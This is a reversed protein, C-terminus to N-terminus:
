PTGTHDEPEPEPQCAFVDFYVGEQVRAYRVAFERRLTDSFLPRPRYNSKLTFPPGPRPVYVFPIACRSFASRLPEDTVGSLELDMFAGYDTQSVGRATLWPRLNALPYSTDDGVGLMGRPFRLAFELLEDRERVQETRRLDFAILSGFTQFTPTIMGLVAATLALAARGRVAPTFGGAAPTFGYLEQFLLVHPALFPIFHHIGAGPKSAAVLVICESGLLTLAFGLWTRRAQRLPQFGGALLLIPAWLGLLFACNRGFLDLSLGHKAALMLYHFYGAASVNQPLFPLVLAILVASGFCVTLIKWEQRWQQLSRGSGWVFICPVLSVAAHAKLGMAAGCLLGLASLGSLGKLNLAVVLSCAAFLLLLPEARGATFGAGLSFLFALAYTLAALSATGRAARWSLTILAAVASWGALWGTLKAGFSDGLVVYGLANLEALLPGYLLGSFSYSDLPPYLPRGALLYHVNSAVSAEIHDLYAPCYLYWTTLLLETIMSACVAVCLWPLLVEAKRSARQSAALGAWYWAVLAILCVGLGGHGYSFARLAETM